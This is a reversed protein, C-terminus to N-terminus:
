SLFGPWGGLSGFPIDDIKFCCDDVVFSRSFWLKSSFSPLDLALGVKPVFDLPDRKGGCFTLGINFDFDEVLGSTPWVDWTMLAM